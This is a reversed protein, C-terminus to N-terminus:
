TIYLASKNSHNVLNAVNVYESQSFAHSYNKEDQKKLSNFKLLEVDLWMQRVAKPFYIEEVLDSLDQM